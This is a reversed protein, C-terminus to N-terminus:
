QIIDTHAHRKDGRGFMMKQYESVLTNYIHTGFELTEEPTSTAVVVANAAEVAAGVSEFALKAMKDFSDALKELEARM